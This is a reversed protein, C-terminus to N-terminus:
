FRNQNMGIAVKKAIAAADMGYKALLDYAKGSEAFSNELGVRILRCETGSEAIAEAVASGLGNVVGDEASVILGKGAEKEIAKTDLPKISACNLVSVSIGQKSLAEAAKLAESVLPGCAIITADRGEAMITAKGLRFEPESDSLVETKERCTRMYFPGNNTYMANTCAVAEYYDAPVLVNLKPISRTVALDMISQGTPGDEGTMIGGHSGVIKVNTESYAVDIKIQDLSRNVLFGAFSSVFPVKGCRALGAAMSVMDAESIGAYRFRHPFKKGFIISKTSKALDADMAVIEEHLGGLLALADGYGDRTAAKDGKSYNSEVM